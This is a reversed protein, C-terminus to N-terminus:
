KVSFQESNCTGPPHVAISSTVRNKIMSEPEFRVLALFLQSILQQSDGDPMAYKKSCTLLEGCDPSSLGRKKMDEKKELQIQQKVSNPTTPLV